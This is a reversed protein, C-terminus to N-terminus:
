IIWHKTLFDNCIENCLSDNALKSAEERDCKKNERKLTRVSTIILTELAKRDILESNLNDEASSTM